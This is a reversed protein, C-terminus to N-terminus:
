NGYRREETNREVLCNYNLSPESEANAAEITRRVQNIFVTPTANELFYDIFTGGYTFSYRSKTEVASALIFTIQSNLSTGEEEALKILQRHLSKPMRLTIRGSVDEDANSISPLPIPQGEEEMVEVIGELAERGCAIAEEVTDGTGIVNPFDKYRLCFYLLDGNSEVHIEFPYKEIYNKNMM